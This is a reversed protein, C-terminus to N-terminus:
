WWARPTPRCTSSRVAAVSFGLGAVNSSASEKQKGAPKEGQAQELDKDDPLEAVTVKITLKKGDRLLGVEVEKNIPTESVILPLRAYENVDKGDFKLIVDGSKLGAKAAPGNPTV